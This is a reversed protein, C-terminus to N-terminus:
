KSPRRLFSRRPDFHSRLRDDKTRLGHEINVVGDSVIKALSLLLYRSSEDVCQLARVPMDSQAWVGARQAIPVLQIQRAQSM